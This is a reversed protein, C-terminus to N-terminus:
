ALVIRSASELHKQNLHVVGDRHEDIAINLAYQLVSEITAPSQGSLFEAIGDATLGDLGVAKRTLWAKVIVAASSEDAVFFPVKETFRGGRLLAPDITEPNNTAAIFIVDKVGGYAGDMITLLKNTVATASSYQRDRLIEDAEDIFILTPRIDKADAYLRELAEINKLLDPGAVSLFAWGTEKALARAVATKGTGPPGYFLVGGPLTGGLQEVRLPDKIRSAVSKVAQATEAQLILESLGKTNAPLHGKRGQIRRLTAMLEPFGVKSAGHEKLFAPLEEGVAILRKASFGEWRKAAEQVAIPDVQVGKAHKSISDKLLGIRAEEDPASVEIKFDFRGERIAAADLKELRNTAAVLVVPFRRIQVLETLLLNVINDSEQNLNGGSDRSGLFSDIEDIFLVCPGTKKAQQFAMAIRRPTEGVWSSVVKGYDLMLLPVGLEGALAEVVVTKGNGPPGFLLIGNRAEDAGVAQKGKGKSKRSRSLVPTAADMLLQKLPRMGHISALTARPKRIEAVAEIETEGVDDLTEHLGLRKGHKWETERVVRHGFVRPSLMIYLHLSAIALSVFMTRDLQLPVQFKVSTYIDIAGIILVAVSALATFRQSYAWIPPLSVARGNGDNFTASSFAFIPWIFHSCLAVIAPIALWMPYYGEAARRPDAIGTLSYLVVGGAGILLFLNCIMAVIGLRLVGQKFFYTIAKM